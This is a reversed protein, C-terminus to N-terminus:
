LDLDASVCGRRELKCVRLLETRGRGCAALARASLEARLPPM